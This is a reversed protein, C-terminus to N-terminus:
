LTPVLATGDRACFKAGLYKTACKPCHRPTQDMQSPRGLVTGDRACFKVDDVYESGCNPCTKM